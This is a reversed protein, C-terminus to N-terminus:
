ANGETILLKTASLAKGAKIGGSAVTSVTGNAQVYYTLGATLGSQNESTSGLVLIDGTAANAIAESAFGIWGTSNSSASAITQSVYRFSGNSIAAATAFKGHEYIAVVATMNNVGNGSVQVEGEKAISAGSTNIKSLMLGNIDGAKERVLIVKKSAADYALDVNESASTSNEQFVTTTGGVVTISSGSIDLQKIGQAGSYNFTVIFCADEPNFECRTWSIGTTTYFAGSAHSTVSGTSSNTSFYYYYGNDSNVGHRVTVLFRNNTSDFAMFIYESNGTNSDLVGTNSMLSVVPNTQGTVSFTVARLNNSGDVYALRFKNDTESHGLAMHTASGSRATNIAGVDTQSTKHYTFSGNADVYFYYAVHRVYHSTTKWAIFLYGNTPDFASTLSSNTHLDGAFLNGGSKTFTDNSPDYTSTTIYVDQGTNWVHIIADAAPFYHMNGFAYDANSPSPTITSSNGITIPNNETIVEEASKVTGNAQLVVADGASIAGDATATFKGGGAGVGAASLATVTAADVSAINSLARSDDIVTTGGVKIAM